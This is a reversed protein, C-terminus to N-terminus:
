ASTNKRLTHFASISIKRKSRNRISVKNRMYNQYLTYMKKKKRHLKKIFQSMIMGMNERRM